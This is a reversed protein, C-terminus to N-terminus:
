ATEFLVLLKRFSRPGTRPTSSLVFSFRIEDSTVELHLSGPEIAEQLRQQIVRPGAEGVRQLAVALAMVPAVDVELAEDDM